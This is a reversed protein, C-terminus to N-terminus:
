AALKRGATRRLQSIRSPDVRLIAASEVGSYGAAALVVVERERETLCARRLRRDLDVIEEVIRYGSEVHGYEHDLEVVVARDQRRWGSLRRLEEVAARRGELYAIAPSLCPRRVLRERAASECEEGIWGRVRVSRAGSVAAAILDAEGASM